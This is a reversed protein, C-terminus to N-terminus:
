GWYHPPENCQMEKREKRGGSMGKFTMKSSSYRKTRLEEGEKIGSLISIYLYIFVRTYIYEEGGTTRCFSIQLMIIIKLLKKVQKEKELFYFHYLHSSSKTKFENSISFDSATKYFINIIHEKKTLQNALHQAIPNSAKCCQIYIFTHM